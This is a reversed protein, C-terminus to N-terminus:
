RIERIKLELSLFVELKKKDRSDFIPSILEEEQHFLSREEVYTCRGKSVDFIHRWSTMQDLLCKALVNVAENTVRPSYSKGKKGWFKPLHHPGVFQVKARLHICSSHQPCKIRSATLFIMKFVEQVQPGHPHLFLGGSSVKM